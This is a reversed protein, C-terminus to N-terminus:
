RAETAEEIEADDYVAFVREAERWDGSQDVRDGYQRLLCSWARRNLMCSTTISTETGAVAIASGVVTLNTGPTEIFSTDGESRIADKRLISGIWRVIAFRKSDSRSRAFRFVM